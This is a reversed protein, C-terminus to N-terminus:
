EGVQLSHIAEIEARLAFSESSVIPELALLSATYEAMQQSGHLRQKLKTALAYIEDLEM